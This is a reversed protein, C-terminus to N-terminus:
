AGIPLCVGGCDAGGCRSDCGGSIDEVCELGAGCEFAAIGGCFGGVESVCRPSSPDCVGQCIGGCDAGGQTPDCSDNPDDVCTLKEPCPFGAFGGCTIASRSRCITPCGGCGDCKVAPDYVCVETAVDCDCGNSATPDVYAYLATVFLDAIDKFSPYVGNVYYGQVIAGQDGLTAITEQVSSVLLDNGQLAAVYCETSTSRNSCRTKPLNLAQIFYGGCMPFPCKRMTDPRISYWVTTSPPTPSAAATHRLIPSSAAGALTCVFLLLSFLKMM